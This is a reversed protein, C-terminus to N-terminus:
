VFVYDSEVPKDSEETDGVTFEHSISEILELEISDLKVGSQMFKFRDVSYRSVINVTKEVSEHKGETGFFTVVGRPMNQSFITVPTQALPGLDSVYNFVIKYLGTKETELGISVSAGKDTSKDSLDIKLYDGLTYYQVDEWDLDRRQPLPFLVNDRQGLM